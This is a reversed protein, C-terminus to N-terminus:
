YGYGPPQQGSGKTGTKTGSGPNPTGKQSQPQAQHLLTELNKKANANNPDLRVATEFEALAKEEPTQSATPVGVNKPNYPSIAQQPADRDDYLLVGLYDAAVSARANDPDTLVVRALATEVLVHANGSGGHSHLLDVAGVVARRFAVDDANGLVGKVLGGPLVTDANWVRPSVPQVAALADGDQMARGWHWVDRALLLLFVACLALVLAGGLRIALSRRTM